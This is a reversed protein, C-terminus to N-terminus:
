LGECDLRTSLGQNTDFNHTVRMIQWTTGAIPATTGTIKAQHLAFISTDGLPLTLNLRQSSKQTQKLHASAAQQAQSLSPFIGKLRRVPDGSGVVISDAKKQTRSRYRAVCSGGEGRGGDGYNLSQVEKANFTHIPLAQGKATTSTGLAQFILSGGNIKFSAHNSKALRQVLHLDSEHRQYFATLPLSALAPSISANLGNRKAISQIVVGLTGAQWAQTRQSQIQKYSANGNFPTAKCRLVLLRSDEDIEREDVVYRGVRVLGTELSGLSAEVIAGRHPIVLAPTRVLVLELSDSDDKADDTVSLEVFLPKLKETLDQGNVLLKFAPTRMVM